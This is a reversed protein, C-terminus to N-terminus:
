YLKTKLSMVWKVGKDIMNKIITNTKLLPTMDINDIDDIFSYLDKYTSRMEHKFQFMSGPDIVVREKNDYNIKDNLLDSIIILCIPNSSPLNKLSLLYKYAEEIISKSLDEEYISATTSFYVHSDGFELKLFYYFIGNDHVYKDSVLDVVNLGLSKLKNLTAKDKFENRM